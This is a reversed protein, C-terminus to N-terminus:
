QSCVDLHPAINCASSVRNYEVYRTPVGLDNGVGSLAISYKSFSKIYSDPVTEIAKGSYDIEAIIGTGSVVDLLFGFLLDRVKSITNLQLRLPFILPLRSTGNGYVVFPISTLIDPINVDM